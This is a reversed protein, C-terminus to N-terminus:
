LGHVFKARDRCQKRSHLCKYKCINTSFSLKSIWYSESNVFLLELRLQEVAKDSASMELELRKETELGETTSTRKSTPIISTRQTPQFILIKIQKDWRQLRHHNTTLQSRTTKQHSKPNSSPTNPRISHAHHAPHPGKDSTTM